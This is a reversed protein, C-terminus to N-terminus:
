ITNSDFGAIRIHTWTSGNHGFVYDVGKQGHGEWSPATTLGIGPRSSIMLRSVPVNKPSGPIRPHSCTSCLCNAHHLPRNTSRCGKSGWVVTTRLRINLPTWDYINDSLQQRSDLKEITFYSKLNISQRAAKTERRAARAYIQYKLNGYGQIFGQIFGQAISACRKSIAMVCTVKIKRGSNDLVM